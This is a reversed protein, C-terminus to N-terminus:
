RRILKFRKIEVELLSEEKKLMELALEVKEDLMMEVCKNNIMNIKELDNKLNKTYKVMEEQNDFLSDVSEM